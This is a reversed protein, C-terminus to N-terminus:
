LLFCHFMIWQFVLLVFDKPTTIIVIWLAAMDDKYCIHESHLLVCYNSALLTCSTLHSVLAAGSFVIEWQSIEPEWLLLYSSSLRRPYQVTYDWQLLSINWLHSLYNMAQHHLCYTGRYCQDVELSYLVVDWNDCEKGNIIVPWSNRPVTIFLM